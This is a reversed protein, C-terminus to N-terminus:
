LPTLKELTNDPLLDLSRAFVDAPLVNGGRSVGISRM